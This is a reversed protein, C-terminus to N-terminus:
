ELQKKYMKVKENLNNLSEQLIIINKRDEEVQLLLEKYSIDRRHLSNLTESHSKKEKELLVELEQIRIEMKQITRKSTSVSSTEIGEIRVTLSRVESELQKRANETRSVKSQEDRLQGELQQAVQGAQRAKDETKKLENTVNTYEAKISSFDREIVNIKQTLNVNINTIETIRTTLEVVKSESVKKANLAENLSVRFQHSEKELSQLKHTVNNYEEVTVNLKKNANELNNTLEHIRVTHQKAADQYQISTKQAIDLSMRLEHITVEMSKRVQDVEVRLRNESEQLRVTLIEIERM